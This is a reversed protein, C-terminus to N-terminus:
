GSVNDDHADDRSQDASTPEGAVTDCQTDCCMQDGPLEHLRKAERWLDKLIAKKVLRDAMAQQHAASRVSGALAPKGAPGCRVCDAPHISDKYKDRAEDWLVRYPSCTCEGEIHVARLYPGPAATDGDKKRVPEGTTKHTYIVYCPASIMRKIPEIINHLRMKATPSWNVKVGKTRQKQGPDYGTYAWLESVTRPREHLDNWFPDGVSALLRAITKPGLGRQAVVWPGLPSAKLIKELNRQATDEVKTLADVIKRVQVVVPDDETMGWGRNKGDKDLGVRTMVELRNVNAKRLGELDNLLEAM